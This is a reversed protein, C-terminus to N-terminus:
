GSSSGSKNLARFFVANDTGSITNLVIDPQQRAIDEALDDM